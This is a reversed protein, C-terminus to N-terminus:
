SALSPIHLDIGTFTCRRPEVRRCLKAIKFGACALHQPGTVVINYRAHHVDGEPDLSSLAFM